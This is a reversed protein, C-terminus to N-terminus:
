EGSVKKLYLARARATVDRLTAQVDEPKAKPFKNKLETKARGYHRCEFVNKSREEDGEEWAIKYTIKLVSGDPGVPKKLVYAPRKLANKAAKKSAKAKLLAKYAAEEIEESSKRDKEAGETPTAKVAKGGDATQEGDTNPEAFSQSSHESLLDVSGRLKHHSRAGAVVVQNRVLNTSWIPSPSRRSKGISRAPDLPVGVAMRATGLRSIGAATTTSIPHLMPARQCSRENIM